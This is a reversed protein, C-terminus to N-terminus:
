QFGKITIHQIIEFDDNQRFVYTKERIIYKM